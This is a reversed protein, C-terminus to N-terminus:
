NKWLGKIMKQIKEKRNTTDDALLTIEESENIEFVDGESLSINIKAKLINVIKGEEDECVAFEGEFRDVILKM